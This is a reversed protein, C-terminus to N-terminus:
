RDEEPPFREARRQALVADFEPDALPNGAATSVLVMPGHSEFHRTVIEVWHGGPFTSSDTDVHLTGCEPAEVRRADQESTSKCTECRFTAISAPTTM